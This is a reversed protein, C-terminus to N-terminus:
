YTRVDIGPIREFHAANRTIVPENELRATAGIICDERDIEEGARVLEGSIEGAERMIESTAPVVHKSDLVDTVRTREDEPRNSRVIGEHFELVSIASLKEPVREAEILELREVAREHGRLLDIIFTTDEIM